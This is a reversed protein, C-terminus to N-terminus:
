AKESEASGGPVKSQDGTAPREEANPAGKTGFVSRRYHGYYGWQVYSAVLLILITCGLMVSGLSCGSAGQILRSLYLLALAGAFNAYFTAYKYSSQVGREYLDVNVPTLNCLVDGLPYKKSLFKEWTIRTVAELVGGALAAAILLVVGISPGSKDLNDIWRKLTPFYPAVAFLAVAGPLLTSLVDGWKLSVM